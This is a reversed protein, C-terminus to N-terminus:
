SPDVGWLPRNQKAIAALASWAEVTQDLIVMDFSTSSRFELVEIGEPGAAYAYPQGGRVFFGDGAPITRGGMQASGAVVYYLCDSSHTHRPLRYGAGFRAHILSMGDGKFLVKIRTAGVFPAFDVTDRVEQALAPPSMIGDEELTPAEDATFFRLGRGGPATVTQDDM